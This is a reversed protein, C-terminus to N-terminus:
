IQTFPMHKAWRPPSGNRLKAGMFQSTYSFLSFTWDGWVQSGERFVAGRTNRDVWGEELPVNDHAFAIHSLWGQPNSCREPDGTGLISTKATERDRGALNCNVVDILGRGNYVSQDFLSPMDIKRM